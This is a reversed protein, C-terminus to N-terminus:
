DASVLPLDLGLETSVEVSHKRLDGDVLALVERVVDNANLSSKVLPAKRLLARVRKL